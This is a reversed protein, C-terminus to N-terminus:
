FENGKIHFIGVAQKTQAGKEGALAANLFNYPM